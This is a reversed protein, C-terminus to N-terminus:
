KEEETILEDPEATDTNLKVNFDDKYDATIRVAVIEPVDKFTNSGKKFRFSFNGISYFVGGLKSSKKRTVTYTRM